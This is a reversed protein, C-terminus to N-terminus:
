RDFQSAGPFIVTGRLHSEKIHWLSQITLHLTSYVIQLPQFLNCSKKFKLLDYMCKDVNYITVSFYQANYVSPSFIVCVVLSRLQESCLLNFSYNVSFTSFIQQFHVLEWAM